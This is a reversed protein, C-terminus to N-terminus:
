VPQRRVRPRSRGRPRVPGIGRKRSTQLLNMMSDYAVYSRTIQEVTGAIQILVAQYASSGDLTYADNDADFAEVSRIKWNGIPRPAGTVGMLVGRVHVIEGVAPKYAANNPLIFRINFPSDVAQDWFSIEQPQGAPLADLARFGWKGNFLFALWQYWIAQYGSLGAAGFDPGTPTGTKILVDPLGALYIPRTQGLASALTAMLSTNPIDSTGQSIAPYQVLPSTGAGTPVAYVVKSRRRQGPLSLRYMTARVNSGMLQTRANMFAVTDLNLGIDATTTAGGLYFHTESWGPRKPGVDNFAWGLVVKIPM